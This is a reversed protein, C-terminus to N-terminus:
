RLKYKIPLTYKVKVKKGNQIGPHWPNPMKNMSQVLDLAAEGIGHGPNRVIQADEIRGELNVIFRIIATGEVKDALAEEPYTQNTYIYKLVEKRACDLAENYEIIHECGPFMPLQDSDTLVENSQASISYISVLIVLLINFSIKM